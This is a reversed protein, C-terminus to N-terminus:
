EEESLIDKIEVPEERLIASFVERVVWFFNGFTVPISPATDKRFYTKNGCYIRIM